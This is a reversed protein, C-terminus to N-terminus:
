NLQQLDNAVQQDAIAGAEDGLARRANARALYVFPMGPKTAIAEDFDHIADNYRGMAVHVQGRQYYGDVTGELKLSQNLDDLAARNNGTAFYHAGRANLATVMGPDMEIAKTWDAIAENSRSLSRYVNGRAYYAKASEESSIATSFHRLAADFDGPGLAKVGAEYATRAREPRTSEFYFWAGGLGAVAWFAVTARFLWPNPRMVDDTAVQLRSRPNSTPPRIADWLREHWPITVQYRRERIHAPVEPKELIKKLKQLLSEAM